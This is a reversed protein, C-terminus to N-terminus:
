SAGGPIIFLSHDPRVRNEKVRSLLSTSARLNVTSAWAIPRPIIASSLLDRAQEPELKDLEILMSRDGEQLVSLM